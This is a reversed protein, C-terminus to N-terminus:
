DVECDIQYWVGSEGVYEGAGIATVFIGVLSWAMYVIVLGILTSKIINKGKTVGTPDGAALYFTVGGWVFMLVALLPIINIMLFQIINNFLVFLHCLECDVGTGPGCPVLGGDGLVSLPIALLVLTIFFKKMM